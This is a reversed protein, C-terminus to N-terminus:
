ETASRIKTPACGKIKRFVRCFYAQDQFGTQSAVENITLTSEKLLITALYIRYRNLYEWPSLGLEKRFIRTLYDESVHVAESLQWRSVAKTAHEALFVVARKVLAGTLPPLVEGSTYLTFLRTEFERSEEVCRHAIILRPILSLQEAEDRRWSERILVIPASTIRRVQEYLLPDFVDSVLLGIPQTRVLDLVEEHTCHQIHEIVPVDPFSAGVVLLLGLASAERPVSSLAAHLSEHNSPAHFCALATKSLQSHRSLLNLALELEADERSGDWALLGGELQSITSRNLNSVKFLTVPGFESFVPPVETEAGSALYFVQSGLVPLSEPGLSPWSLRFQISNGKLTVLGGSMLVIRQALSLSPDQKGMSAKWTGISSAFTCEVGEVLLRVTLHAEGGEKRIHNCVIAFAQKLRMMDGLLTPLDSPGHYQLTNAEVLDTFLEDLHYTRMELELEGTHSLSLDLLHTASRIQEGVQAQVNPDSNQILSLISELPTRLGEGVNAFFESRARQAKEAEERARNAADLLFAGKLASSLSTRLEEMVGGNFLSTGIVLYGLPQNDMFLSEVVYVGCEMQQKLSPPLLLHKAFRQQEGIILSGSYGGLFMSERDDKYLVLFCAELGLTLLHKALLAPIASVERVGLLDCKLEDLRKAQLSLRYAHEHAVLDRQRLFLDRISASYERLFRENAHFLEFWHLAESLLNPDGGRDLFRYSFRELLSFDPENGTYLLQSVEEQYEEPVTFSQLLWTLYSQKTGVMARAQEETGLSYVCGCSRRVVLVSPLLIDFCSAKQGDLLNELLTWSMRALENVPMRATTCPVRLLHSESSDNYGVIRVDRPIQYGANQLQKGADFMMMDSSCALTDFDQGPVLGREVLLQDMAKAGETWPFPDSVLKADFVLGTQDLTDCYARYRDQASYHNEPGRIFAIRKGQHKTICHLIVAQVGSYADFSVVPCGGQKIGISVLPLPSFTSLFNQVETFGVSGTLASAWTIVGDVNDPNVLSYISNRLYEHGEQCELRGGPFVFLSSGSRQALRAIESWLGNSAGTHISALVLGLTPPLRDTM